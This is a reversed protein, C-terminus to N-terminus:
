EIIKVKIQIAGGRVSDTGGSPNTDLSITVTKGVAADKPSIELPRTGTAVNLPGLNTDVMDPSHTVAPTVGKALVNVIAPNKGSLSLEVNRTDVSLLPEPAFLTGQIGWTSYITNSVTTIIVFSVVGQVNSELNPIFNLGARKNQTDNVTRPVKYIALREGTFTDKSTPPPPLDLVGLIFKPFGNYTDTWQLRNTGFTGQVATDVSDQTRTVSYSANVGADLASTLEAGVTFTETRSTVATRPAFDALTPQNTNPHNPDSSTLTLQTRKNAWTTVNATMFLGFEFTFPDYKPSQTYATDVLFYDNEQHTNLRYIRVIAGSSGLERNFVKGQERIEGQAPKNDPMAITSDLVLNWAAPNFSEARPSVAAAIAANDTAALHAAGSQNVAVANSASQELLPEVTSTIWDIAATEAEDEDQAISAFTHEVGTNPDVFAGYVHSHEPVEDSPGPPPLGPTPASGPASYPSKSVEGSVTDPGPDGLAKALADDDRFEIAVMGEALAETARCIAQHGSASRPIIYVPVGALTDAATLTPPKVDACSDGDSQARAVATALATFALITFVRLVGAFLRM